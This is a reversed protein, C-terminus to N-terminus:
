LADAQERRAQEALDRHLATQVDSAVIPMLREVGRVNLHVHDWCLEDDFWLFMPDAVLVNRSRLSTVWHGFATFNRTPRLDVRVPMVRVIVPATTGLRRFEASWGDCPKIDQGHWPLAIKPGHAILPWYGKGDAIRRELTSYTEGPLDVLPLDRVDVTMGLVTSIAAWGRSFGAQVLAPLPLPNGYAHAFRQPLTNGGSVEDPAFSIPSMCIVFARPQPHHALYASATLALTQVGAAGVTGLNYAKLGTLREFEVVDIGHRCASDGLFVVDNSERSHLAHEIPFTVAAETATPARSAALLRTSNSACLGVGYSIGALTALTLCVASMAIITPRTRSMANM